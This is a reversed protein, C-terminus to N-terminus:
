VAPILFFPYGDVKMIDYDKNSDSDMADNAYDVEDESDTSYGEAFPSLGRHVWDLNRYTSIIDIQYEPIDYILGRYPLGSRWTAVASKLIDDFTIKIAREVRGEKVVWPGRNVFRLILKVLEWHVGEIRM